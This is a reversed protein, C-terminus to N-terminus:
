TANKTQRASRPVKTRRLFGSISGNATRTGYRLKMYPRAGDAPHFETNLYDREETTLARVSGDEEVYIFDSAYTGDLKSQRERAAARRGALVLGLLAALIALTVIATTM